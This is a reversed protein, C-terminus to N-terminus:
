GRSRGDQSLDSIDLTKAADFLQHSVSSYIRTNVL